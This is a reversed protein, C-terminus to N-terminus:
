SPEWFAPYLSLFRNLLRVKPAFRNGILSFEWYFILPFSALLLRFNLQTKFFFFTSIKLVFAITNIRRVRRQRGAVLFWYFLLLKSAGVLAIQVYKMLNQHILSFITSLGVDHISFSTAEFTSFRVLCSCEKQRSKRNGTKETQKLAILPINTYALVPQETWIVRFFNSDCFFKPFLIWAATPKKLINASRM